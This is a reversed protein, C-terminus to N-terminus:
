KRYYEVYECFSVIIFMWLYFNVVSILVFTQSYYVTVYVQIIYFILLM